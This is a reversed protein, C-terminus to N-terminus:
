TLHSASQLYAQSVDQPWWSYGFIEAMAILLPVTRQHINPSAHVMMNKEADTNEQVVFREKCVEDNKGVNKVALVFRGELM